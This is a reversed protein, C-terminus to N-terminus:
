PPSLTSYVSAGLEFSYKLVNWRGSHRKTKDVLVADAGSIRYHYSSWREVDEPYRGVTDDSAPGVLIELDDLNEPYVTRLDRPLQGNADGYMRIVISMQRLNSQCSSTRSAALARGAVVHLLSALIMVIAIVVLLEILTFGCPKHGVAIPM